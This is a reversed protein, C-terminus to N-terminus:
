LHDHRTRLRRSQQVLGRRICRNKRVESGYACAKPVRTHDGM